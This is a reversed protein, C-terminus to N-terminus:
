HFYVIIEDVIKEQTHIINRSPTVKHKKIKKLRKRGARSKMCALTYKEDSMPEIGDIFCISNDLLKSKYICKCDNQKTRSWNERIKNVKDYLDILKKQYFYFFKGKKGTLMFNNKLIIWKRRYDYLNRYLRKYEISLNAM